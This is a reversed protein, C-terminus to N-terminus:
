CPETPTVTGCGRLAPQAAAAFRRISLLPFELFPASSLPPDSGQPKSHPDREVMRRLGRKTNPTVAPLLRPNGEMVTSEPVLVTRAGM